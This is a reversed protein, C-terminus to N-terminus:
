RSLIFYLHTLYLLNVEINAEKDTILTLKYLCNTNKAPNAKLMLNMPLEFVVSTSKTGKDSINRAGIIYDLLINTLWLKYCKGKIEYTCHCKVTLNTPYFSSLVRFNVIKSYPAENKVEGVNINPEDCVINYPTIIHLKVNEAVKGDFQLDFKVRLRKIRGNKDMLFYTESSFNNDLLLEPSVEVKVDLFNKPFAVIGKEFNNIIARLKNTEDQVKEPDYNKTPVILKNNKVPEVGLYLISLTGKDSLSVIFGKIGDLEIRNLYIPM